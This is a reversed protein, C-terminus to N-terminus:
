REWDKLEKLLDHIDSPDVGYQRHLLRGQRDFALLAPIGDINLKDSLELNPDLLSDYKMGFELSSKKIEEITKNNDTNVGYFVTLNKNSRERLVEIVPGAKKCPECWTAWFDLVVVKDHLSKLTIKNKNWDYVEVHLYPADYTNKCGFFSLFLFLIIVLSKM